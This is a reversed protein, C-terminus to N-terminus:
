DIDLTNWFKKIDQVTKELNDGSRFTGEIKVSFGQGDQTEKIIMLVGPGLEVKKIAATKVNNKEFYQQALDKRGAKILAKQINDM